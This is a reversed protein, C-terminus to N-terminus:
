EGPQATETKKAAEEKQEESDDQVQAVEGAAQIAEQATEETATAM